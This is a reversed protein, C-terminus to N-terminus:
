EKEYAAEKEKEAELMKNLENCKCAKATKIQLREVAKLYPVAVPFEEAIRKVTGLELLTNLINVKMASKERRLQRLKNNAEDLRDSYEGKVELSSKKFPIPFSIMSSVWSKINGQENLCAISVSYQLGIYQSWKRCFDIVGKPIQDKVIEECLEKIEKRISNERNAFYYNAIRIAVEDATIKSIKAM